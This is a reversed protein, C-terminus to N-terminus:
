EKANMSLSKMRAEVIKERLLVTNQYLQFLIGREVKKNPEIRSIFASIKDIINIAEDLLKTVEPYDKNKSM